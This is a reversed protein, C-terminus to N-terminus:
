AESLKDIARIVDLHRHVEIYISSKWIPVLVEENRISIEHTRVIGPMVAPPSKKINPLVDKNKSTHTHMNMSGMHIGDDTRYPFSNSIGTATITILGIDGHNRGNCSRTGHYDM